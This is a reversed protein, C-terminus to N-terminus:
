HLGSYAGRKKRQMAACCVVLFITLTTSPEPISEFQVLISQDGPLEMSVDNSVIGLSSFSGPFTAVGTIPDNAVYDLPLDLQDVLGNSAFEFLGGSVHTGSTSKTAFSIFFDGLYYKQTPASPGEGFLFGSSSLSTGSASNSILQPQGFFATDLSGSIEVLVDTSRETFIVIVSGKTATGSAILMLAFLLFKM